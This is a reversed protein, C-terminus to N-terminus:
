VSRQDFDLFVETCFWLLGIVDIFLVLNIFGPTTDCEFWIVPSKNLSKKICWLAWYSSILHDYFEKNLFLFKKILAFLLRSFQGAPVTIFTSPSQDFTPSVRAKPLTVILAPFWQTSICMSIAPSLVPQKYM